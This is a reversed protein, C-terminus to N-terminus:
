GGNKGAAPPVPPTRDDQMAKGWKADFPVYNAAGLNLSSVDMVFVRINSMFGQGTSRSWNMKKADPSFHAMGNFGGGYTLQRPAGGALDGLFV